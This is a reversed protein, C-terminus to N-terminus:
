RCINRAAQSGCCASRCRPWAMRMSCRSTGAAAMSAKGFYSGDRRQVTKWGLMGDKGGLPSNEAGKPAPMLESSGLEITGGETEEFWPPVSERVQNGTRPDVEGIKWRHQHSAQDYENTLRWFRTRRRPLVTAGDADAQRGAARGAPGPLRHWGEAGHGSAAWRGRLLWLRRPRIPQAPNSAWFFHDQYKEDRYVVALDDGIAVITRLKCKKPLRLEHGRITGDGGIVYAHVKDSVVISPFTLHLNSDGYQNFAVKLNGQDVAQEFAPLGYEDFVGAQLTRRLMAVPDVRKLREALDPFLRLTDPWLTSELRARATEFSALGTNELRAIADSTHRHWLEKIGPRDGAALPFPHQGLNAQRYGRQLAGGRCALAEDLGQLM